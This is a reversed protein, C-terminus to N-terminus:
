QFKDNFIKKSSKRPLNEPFIKQISSTACRERGPNPHERRMAIAIPIGDM